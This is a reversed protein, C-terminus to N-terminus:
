DLGEVADEARSLKTILHGLENPNCELVKTKLEGTQKDKLTFTLLVMKQTLNSMTSSALM